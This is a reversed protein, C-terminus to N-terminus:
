RCSGPAVDLKRKLELNEAVVAAELAVLHACKEAPIDFRLKKVVGALFYREQFPQEFLRTGDRAVGVLVVQEARLHVNGTNAVVWEATAGRLELRTIDAKRDVQAPAVFVPVGVRLLVQLSTGPAVAGPVSPPLEEVFVRYTEELAVPAAKVGVRIIRSDGPPIEMARPFYLLGDAPEYQDQGEADQRWLMAQVQMRLPVSDDNRVLIESARTTRDLRVQLPNITFEAAHLAPALAAAVALVFRCSRQLMNDNWTM